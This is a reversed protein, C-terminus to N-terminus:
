GPPPGSYVSILVWETATGVITVSAKDQNITYTSEGDITESSNPDIIINHSSANDGGDKIHLIRGLSDAIAPLDLTKEGTGSCVLLWDTAAVTHTSNTVSTVKGAYSGSVTLTASPSTTDIGVRNTATIRMAETLSGGVTTFFQIEDNNSQCGIQLSNNSSCMIYATDVGDTEFQIERYNGSTKAIRLGETVSGSIHIPVTTTVASNTVTLRASGSTELAISDQGFDISTAAGDRDDEYHIDGRRVSGTVFKYGM